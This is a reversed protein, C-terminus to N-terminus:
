SFLLESLDIFPLSMLADDCIEHWPSRVSKTDSGKPDSFTPRLVNSLPTFYLDDRSIVILIDAILREPMMRLYDRLLLLLPNIKLLLSKHISRISVCIASM